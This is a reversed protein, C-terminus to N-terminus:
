LKGTRLYEDHYAEVAELMAEKTPYDEPNFEKCNGSLVDDQTSAIIEDYDIGDDPDHKRDEEDLPNLNNPDYAPRKQPTLGQQLIVHQPKANM